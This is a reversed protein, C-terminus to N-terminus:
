TRHSSRKKTLPPTEIAARLADELGLPYLSLPKLRKRSRRGSAKTPMERVSAPKPKQEREKRKKVITEREKVFIKTTLLERIRSAPSVAVMGAHPGEPGPPLYDWFQSVIGIVGIGGIERSRINEQFNRMRAAFTDYMAVPSGSFGRWSRAEILYAPVELSVKKPKADWEIPIPESESPLLSIHGFRLVPLIRKKGAHPYFLGAYFVEDGVGIDSRYLHKGAGEAPRDTDPTLADWPLSPTECREDDLRVLAAAIDDKPHRRWQSLPMLIDETGNRTNVRLYVTKRGPLELTHRNTIAYTLHVGAGLDWAVLFATGVPVIEAKRNEACVFIALKRWEDAISM